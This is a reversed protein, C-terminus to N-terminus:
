VVMLRVSVQPFVRWRSRSKQWKRNGKKLLLSKSWSTLLCGTWSQNMGLLSDQTHRPMVYTQRTSDDYDYVHAHPTLPPAVHETTSAFESM